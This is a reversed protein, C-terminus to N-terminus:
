MNCGASWGGMAQLEELTGVIVPLNDSIAWYDM